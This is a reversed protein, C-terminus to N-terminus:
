CENAHGGMDRRGVLGGHCALQWVVQSHLSLHEDLSQLSSTEVAGRGVVRRKLHLHTLSAGVSESVTVMGLGRGSM